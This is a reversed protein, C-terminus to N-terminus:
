ADVPTFDLYYEKGPVYSVAPNSVAITLQGSPTAKAFRQNEPTKDDYVATFEYSRDGEHDPNWKTTIERTCRFKARITAM